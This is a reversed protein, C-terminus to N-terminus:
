IKERLQNVADVLENIKDWMLKNNCYDNYQKVILPEIEEIKTFDYRGIRNFHNCIFHYPEDPTNWTWPGIIIGDKSTFTFSNQAVNSIYGIVGTKTEIYDGIHFEYNM